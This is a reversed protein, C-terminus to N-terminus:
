QQKNNNTTVTKCIENLRGESEERGGRLSRRKARYIRGNEEWELGLSSIPKESKCYDISSSFIGFCGWNVM